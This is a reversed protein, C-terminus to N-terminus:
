PVTAYQRVIQEIAARTAEDLPTHDGITTPTCLDLVSAAYKLASLWYAKTHLTWLMSIQRQLAEAHAWQEAEVLSLFQAFLAPALNGLGPVIGTAQRRLAELSDRVAGQLVSFGPRAQCLDLVQSFYAFDASSEKLAIINPEELLHQVVEPELANYTKSPINYIVVPLASAQAIARFHMEQTYADVEYYYPHTVVIADAGSPQVWEVMDLVRRTSPQLVGVLVPVRGGAATVTEHVVTRCQADSLWAGEGTTGLVFLGDVGGTILYEVLRHLAAVDIERDETLPTLMPPILGRLDLTM